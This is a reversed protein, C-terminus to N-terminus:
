NESTNVPEGAFLADRKQELGCSGAWQTLLDLSGEALRQKSFDVHISHFSFQLANARSEAGEAVLLDFLSKQKVSSAHQHLADVFGSGTDSSVNQGRSM